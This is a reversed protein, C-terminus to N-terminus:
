MAGMSVMRRTERGGGPDHSAENAPLPAENRLTVSEGNGALLNLNPAPSHPRCTARSGSRAPDM